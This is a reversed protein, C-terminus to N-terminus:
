TFAAIVKSVAFYIKDVFWYPNNSFIAPASSLVGLCGFAFVFGHLWRPTPLGNGGLVPIGMSVRLLYTAGLVLLTVSILFYAYLLM